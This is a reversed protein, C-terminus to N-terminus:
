KKIKKIRYYLLASNLGMCILDNVVFPYNKFYINTTIACVFAVNLIILSKVTVGEILKTKVATLLDPLYSIIFLLSGIVGITYIIILATNEM